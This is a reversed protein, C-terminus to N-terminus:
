RVNTSKKACAFGGDRFEVAVGHQRPLESAPAPLAAVAVLDSKIKRGDDVELAKVWSHGHAAVVKTKVGDIRTVRAGVTELAEALTRAYPGDGVVVPREAPRIGYRVLLRGVARASLVGPRDN